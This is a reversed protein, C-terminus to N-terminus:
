GLTHGSDKTKLVYLVVGCGIVFLALGIFFVVKFIKWFLKKKKKPKEGNTEKKNKKGKNAKKELKAKKKEEKEKIKDKDLKVRKLKVKGNEPRILNDMEKDSLM